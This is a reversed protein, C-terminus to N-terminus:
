RGCRESNDNIIQTYDVETLFQPTYTSGTNELALVFSRLHNRSGCQLKEYVSIITANSTANIYDELDVIDLDEITAGVKLAETLNLAGDEIFTDYLGQIEQNVFEGKPLMTHEVGFGDLLNGVADLHSQESNQINAFQPVGWLQYLYMYTDRALKEEELMFLLAEQDELPIATSDQNNIISGTEDNDCGMFISSIVLILTPLLIKTKTLGNMAEQM